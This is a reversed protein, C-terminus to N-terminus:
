SSVGLSPSAQARSYVLRSAAIKAFGRLGAYRHLCGPRCPASAPVTGAYGWRRKDITAPFEPPRLYRDWFDSRKRDASRRAWFPLPSLTRRPLQRDPVRTLEAGRTVGPSLARRPNLSYAVLHGRLASQFSSSIALAAPAASPLSAPVGWGRQPRTVLGPDAQHVAVLPQVVGRHLM